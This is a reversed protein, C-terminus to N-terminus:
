CRNRKHGEVQMGLKRKLVMNEDILRANEYQLWAYDTLLREVKDIDEHTKDFATADFLELKFMEATIYDLMADPLTFINTGLKKYNLANCSFVIKTYMPNNKLIIKIRDISMDIAKRTYFNMEKFGGSATSWGTPIGAARPIAVYRWVLPRLKATGAGAEKEDLSDLFNENFIFLTDKYKDQKVMWAFDGEAHRKTFLVGHVTRLSGERLRAFSAEMRAEAVDVPAEDSM